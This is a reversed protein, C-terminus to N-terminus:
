YLLFAQRAGEWEREDQQLARELAEPSGGSDVWRRLSPGGNIVDIPLRRAEYEYPPAKWIERDPRQARIGQLILALLRYPRFRRHRYFPATAHIQLGRCLTGAHKHFTPEFACPRLRCGELWGPPAHDQLFAQLAPVDLEPAGVMELPVTTGRGESLLTGELLVTGAYCRAMNLSSANPSPNVWPLATLPWGFGPGAEPDYGEMAVVELKV